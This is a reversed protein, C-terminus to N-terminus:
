GCSGVLRCCTFVYCVLLVQFLTKKGYECGCVEAVTGFSRIHTVAHSSFSRCRRDVADARRRCEFCGRAYQVDALICLHKTMAGHYHLAKASCDVEMLHIYFHCLGPHPKKAQVMATQLVEQIRLTGPLPEGDKTWLSRPEM